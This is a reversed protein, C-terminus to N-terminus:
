EDVGLIGLLIHESGVYVHGLDEAASIAGNLARNAKDTFGNFSYRM